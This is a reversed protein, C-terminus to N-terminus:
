RLTSSRSSEPPARRAPTRHAASTPCGRLPSCRNCSAGARSASSRSGSSHVTFLAVGVVVIHDLCERRISGILRETHRGAGSPVPISRRPVGFDAIRARAIASVTQPSSKGTRPKPFKAAPMSRPRRRREKGGAFAVQVSCALQAFENAQDSAFLRDRPMKLFGGSVLRFWLVPQRTRCASGM